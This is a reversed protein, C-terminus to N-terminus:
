NYTWPVFAIGLKFEHLDTADTSFHPLKSIYCEYLDVIKIPYSILLILMAFHLRLRTQKYDSIAM